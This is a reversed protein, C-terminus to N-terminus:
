ESRRQETEKCTKRINLLRENGTNAARYRQEEATEGGDIRAGKIDLGCRFGSNIQWPGEQARVPGLIPVLFM